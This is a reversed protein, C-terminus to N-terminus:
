QRNVDYANFNDPAWGEPASAHNHGLRRKHALRRGRSSVLCGLM